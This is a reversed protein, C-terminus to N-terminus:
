KRILNQIHSKVINYILSGLWVKFQFIGFNNNQCNLFNENPNKPCAKELIRKSKESMSERLHEM